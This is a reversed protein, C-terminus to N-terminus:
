KKMIILLQFRKAFLIVLMMLKNIYLNEDLSKIYFPEGALLDEKIQNFEEQPDNNEIDDNKRKSM